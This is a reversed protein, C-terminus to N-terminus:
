TRQDLKRAECRSYCQTSQGQEGGLIYGSVSPRARIPVVQNALQLTSSRQFLKAFAYHGRQERLCHRVRGVEVDEGSRRLRRGFRIASSLSQHVSRRSANQLGMTNGRSTDGTCWMNIPHASVVSQLQTSRVSRGRWTRTSWLSYSFFGFRGFEERFRQTQGLKGKKNAHFSDYYDIRKVQAVLKTRALITPDENINNVALRFLFEEERQDGTFLGGVQITEPLSWVTRTTLHIIIIALVTSVQVSLPPQM